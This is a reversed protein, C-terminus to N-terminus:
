EPKRPSTERPVPRKSQLQQQQQTHKQELKQTQQQHRQETLQQVQPKATQKAAQQDEKEQQQQLKQHEKNQQDVLKQQQNQYQQDAKSNGSSPANEVQHPQLDRAHTPNDNRPASTNGEAPREGKPTEAPRNGGTTPAAGRAPAPRYPAGEANAAVVGGGSFEGPRSTAAVPPKGQNVEARMQLNSRAAQVHQTQAAVPPIHRRQEIAQDHATPRASIGGEGGNFSVRNVTVNNIVTKDIYVNHISREDVHMVASNYFFHGGDWRGGYFGEGFYGFGYNIGGYFGVETGWYGEHFLFGGGEWGWWGPTWLYGPEPAEVWTGPVWYYGDDPDYAWYGPTWLYGDDPCIPQDYVPLAPPGFSVTVSLQASVPEILALALLALLVTRFARKM